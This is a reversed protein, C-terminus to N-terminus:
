FQVQGNVVRYNVGGYNVYGTFGFDVQGGTIKWWGYANLALSNYNFNIAGNEVYWWGYANQVLGTAQFNIAGGEVYWWGYANQVLGTYGFNIASREVYWWGYKSDYVLGNAAFSVAGNEVYWWGYTNPALGTYNFDVIGDENIYWWGYANGAVTVQKQVVGNVLNYWANGVQVVDTIYQRQGDVYYVDEGDVNYIGTQYSSVTTSAIYATNELVTAYVDVTYDASLDLDDTPISITNTLTTAAGATQYDTVDAVKVGNQTVVVEVPISLDPTSVTGDLAMVQNLYDSVKDGVAVNYTVELKDTVNVDATGSLIEASDETHYMHGTVYALSPVFQPLYFINDHAGVDILHFHEVGKETLVRSLLEQDDYFAYMDQNGCALFVSFQNLYGDSTQAAATYGNEVMRIAGYFSIVGSFLDSNFMGINVSGGGGMSCGSTMRYREDDITRYRKDVTPLLDDTVMDAYKGGWFSSKTPDDPIVVIMPEIEGAAIAEDLVQDIKDIAYTTSQSNIGHLLYLTPYRQANGEEYYGEPLYVRFTQTTGDLAESVYDDQFFRSHSGYMITQGDEVKYYESVEPDNLIEVTEGDKEGTIVRAAQYNYLDGDVFVGVGTDTVKINDYINMWDSAQAVRRARDYGSEYYEVSLTNQYAEINETELANQQAAAAEKVAGAIDDSAYVSPKGAAKNYAAVTYIGVPGQYWGGGGSSNCTRIAITNKGGYNLVSSDLAYVNNVDWPNSGDYFGVGEDNFNIGNSGILKGNIYVENSEDFCGVAVVLGETKFDKEEPLDFTRVYWAYGSYNANGGLSEDFDATWWGLCPQVVGWSTYEQETLNAVKDLEVTSADNRSYPKYAKFYWDGMLDVQQEDDATGTDQVAVMSLSGAQHSMGMFSIEATLTTNIGDAMKATDLDFGIKTSEGAALEKVNKTQTDLIEGSDPDSMQVTVEVEPMEKAFKAIDEKMTLTVEAKASKVDSTVAQPTCSLSADYINETFRTSFRNMSRGLAALYYDADANGALVAYEVYQLDSTAGGYNRYREAFAGYAGSNVELKYGIDKTGGAVTTAADGNPADIYYYYDGSRIVSSDPLNDTIAGKELYPNAESIFDGMHSGVGYFLDSKAVLANEYAMYGGVNVGLIARYQKDPIVSYKAEVDAVVEGLLTDYDQTETFEPMVVVMPIADEGNMISDLTEAIGDNIYIDASYGDYPMLYVTPYSMDESYGDPLYVKYTVIGDDKVAGCTAIGNEKTGTTESVIKGATDDAKVAEKGGDTPKNAAGAAFATGPLCSTVMAASLLCGLVQKAKM